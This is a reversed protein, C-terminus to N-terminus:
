RQTIVGREDHIRQREALAVDLFHKRLRGKNEVDCIECESLPCRWCSTNKVVYDLFRSLAAKAEVESLADIREKIDM